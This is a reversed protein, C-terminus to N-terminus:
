PEHPIPRISQSSIVINNLLQDLGGVENLQDVPDGVEQYGRHLWRGLVWSGLETLTM